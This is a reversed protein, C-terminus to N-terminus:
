LYGTLPLYWGGTSYMGVLVGGDPGSEDNPAPIPRRICSGLADGGILRRTPAM